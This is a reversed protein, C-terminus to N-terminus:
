VAGAVQAAIPAVQRVVNVVDDFWGSPGVNAGEPVAASKTINNRDVAPLQKPRKM